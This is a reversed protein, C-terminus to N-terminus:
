KGKLAEKIDTQFQEMIKTFSRGLGAVLNQPATHTITTRAKYQKKLLVSPASEQDDILLFEMELVATPALPDSFDGYMATVAGELFHTPGMISADTLVQSFLGSESIVDRVAGTMMSEPTIFFLHYYDSQWELQSTRYVLNTSAFADSVHMNRVSLVRENATNKEQGVAQIEGPEIVYYHKEVPPKQLNLEMCASLSLLPVLLSLFLITRKM